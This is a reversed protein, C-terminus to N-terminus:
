QPVTWLADSGDGDATDTLTRVEAHPGGGLALGVALGAALGVGVAALIWARPRQRVSATLRDAVSAGPADAAPGADASRLLAAAQAGSLRAQPDRQLLGTIVSGLPGRAHVPPPDGHLVAEVTAETTDRRFPGHGVVAHFLTAGVAWLDAAPTAVAGDLLEPATYGPSGTVAGTATRPLHDAAQAVGLDTLKVSGDAPLMVNGPKVDGHVVGRRHAVQLAALLQTGLVTAATEDLPGSAAVVEALTRAEVLEMVIHETGQDTLVDYVAVIGPDDLQGPTRAERLLRERFVTREEASLGGPLHLEKVAVQRRLVRDEARWVVGMAGRGLEALVVYRGGIVRTPHLPNM